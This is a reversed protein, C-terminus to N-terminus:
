VHFWPPPVRVPASLDPKLTWYPVGDQPAAGDGTTGTAPTMPAHARIIAWMLGRGYHDPGPGYHDPGRGDHESGRGDHDPNKGYDWIGRHPHNPDTEFFAGVYWLFILQRAVGGLLMDGMIQAGVAPEAKAMLATWSLGDAGAPAERLPSVIANYRTILSPLVGGFTPHARFRELYEAALSPDLDPVGTLCESVEIFDDCTPYVGDLWDHGMDGHGGAPMM